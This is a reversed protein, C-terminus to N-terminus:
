VRRFSRLGIPRRACWLTQEVSDTRWGVDFRKTLLIQRLESLFHAVLQDLNERLRAPVQSRVQANHLQGNRQMAHEVGRTVTEYHVDAMLTVDVFHKGTPEISKAGHTLEAPEIAKQQAGLALVIAIARTV